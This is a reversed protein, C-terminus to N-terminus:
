RPQCETIPTKSRITMSAAMSFTFALLLGLLALAADDLKTELPKEGRARIARGARWGIGWAAAMLVAHSQGKCVKLAVGSYGLKRSLHFSELDVLSEDIVVPCLKAAEHM